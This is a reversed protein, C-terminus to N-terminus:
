EQRCYFEIMRKDSMCFALLLGSLWELGKIINKNENKLQFNKNFNFKKLIFFSFGEDRLCCCIRFGTGYYCQEVNKKDKIM